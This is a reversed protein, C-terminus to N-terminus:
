SIIAEGNLKMLKEAGNFEASLREGTDLECTIMLGNEAFPIGKMRLYSILAKRHNLEYRSILDLFRGSLRSLDFSQQIDIRKDFLLLYVSGGDYADRFYCSAKCLECAIMSFIHGDAKHLDVSPLAFEQVGERLGWDKLERSAQLLNVPVEETHEDAWAWLWVLTNDSETGLVQFTFELDDNFRIKGADLDLDGMHEDLLLDLKDQKELSILAFQELHKTLRSM